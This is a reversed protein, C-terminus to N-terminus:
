EVAALALGGVIAHLEHGHDLRQTRELPRTSDRKVDVALVDELAHGLPELAPLGLAPARRRLLRHLVHLQPLLQVLEDVAAAVGDLPVTHAPVVAVRAVLTRVLERVEADLDREAFSGGGHLAPTFRGASRCPRPSGRM